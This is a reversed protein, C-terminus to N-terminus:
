NIATTTATTVGSVTVIGNTTMNPGGMIAMGIAKIICAERM